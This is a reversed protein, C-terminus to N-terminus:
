QAAALDIDDLYRELWEMAEAAVARPDQGKFPGDNMSYTIETRKEGLLVTANQGALYQYEHVLLDRDSKIFKFYIDPKDENLKFWAADIADRVEKAGEVRDVKGLVDCTTRLLVVVTAWRRRWLSGVLGDVLEAHAERCDALVIRANATM